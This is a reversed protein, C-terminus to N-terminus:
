PLGDLERLICPSSLKPFGDIAIVTIHKRGICPEIGASFDGCALVDNLYCPFEPLAFPHDDGSICRRFYRLLSDTEEARGSDDIVRDPGLRTTQFLQGFVNEFADLRGHFRELIQAATTSSATGRHGDFMWGKVREEAEVPPLYTITLFYESEFHA